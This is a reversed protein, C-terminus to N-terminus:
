WVYEQIQLTIQLTEFCNKLWFLLAITECVLGFYNFM